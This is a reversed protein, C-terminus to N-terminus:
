SPGATSSKVSSFSVRDGEQIMAIGDLGQVADVNGTGGDGSQSQQQGVFGLKTDAPLGQIAERLEGVNNFTKGQDQAM